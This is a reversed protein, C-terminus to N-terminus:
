PEQAAQRALAAQLAARVPAYSRRHQECPGLRHLIERHLASPYGKHLDFRYDPHSRVQRRNAHRTASVHLWYVV